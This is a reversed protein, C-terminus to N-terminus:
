LWRALEPAATSLAVGVILWVAGVASVHLGGTETAELRERLEGAEKSRAQREEELARRHEDVKQDIEAQLGSVRDNVHDMNKELAVLRAEVSDDAAATTVFGRGRVATSATAIGGVSITRGGYRPFNALWRCALALMGPRGFLRRTTRIGWAVTGIGLIQLVLGTLRIRAETPNGGVALAAGLLTAVALWSLRAEWLWRGLARTWPVLRATRTRATM